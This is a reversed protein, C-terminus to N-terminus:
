VLGSSQVKTEEGFGFKSSEDHGFKSGDNHFKLGDYGFKLGDNDFNSYLNCFKSDDCEAGKSSPLFTETAVGNQVPHPVFLLIRPLRTKKNKTHLTLCPLGAFKWPSLDWAKLNFKIPSIIRRVYILM